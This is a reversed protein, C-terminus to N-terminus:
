LKWGNTKMYLQFGLVLAEMLKETQYNERQAELEVGEYQDLSIRNELMYKRLRSISVADARLHVGRIHHGYCLSLGNALTWRTNQSSAKNVIWHHGATKRKKCRKGKATWVCTKDTKRVIFSWLKDLKKKLRRMRKAKPIVKKGGNRKRNRRIKPAPGVFRSKGIWDTM